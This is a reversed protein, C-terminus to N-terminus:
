STIAQLYVILGISLWFSLTFILYYVILGPATPAISAWVFLAIIASLSAVAMLRLWHVHTRRPAPSCLARVLTSLFHAISPAYVSPPVM